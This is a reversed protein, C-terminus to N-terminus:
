FEMSGEAEVKEPFWPCNLKFFFFSGFGFGLINKIVTRLFESEKLESM